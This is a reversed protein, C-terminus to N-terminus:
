QTLREEAECGIASGPLAGVCDRGAGKAPLTISLKADEQTITLAVARDALM